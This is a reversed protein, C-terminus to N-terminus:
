FVPHFKLHSVLFITGMLVLLGAGAFELIHEFHHLREGNRSIVSLLKKKSYATMVGIASITIAMGTTMSAVLVVALENLRMALLFTLLIMVGPCPTVGLTIILPLGSKGYRDGHRKKESGSSRFVIPKIKIGLLMLGIGLILIYSILYANQSTKQFTAVLSGLSLYYIGYIVIMASIGQAFPIFWCLMLTKKLKAEKKGVLYSFIVSKGHGPGAAHIIGYLFTIGVILFFVGSDGKKLQRILRSLRVKIKQQSQAVYSYFQDMVEVSEQESVQVSQVNGKFPNAAVSGSIGVCLCILILSYSLFKM